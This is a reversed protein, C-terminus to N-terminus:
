LYSCQSQLLYFFNTWSHVCPFHETWGNNLGLCHSELCKAVRLFQQGAKEYVHVHTNQRFAINFSNDLFYAVTLSNKTAYVCIHLCEAFHKPLISTPRDQLQVKFPSYQFEWNKRKQSRKKLIPYFLYSDSLAGFQISLIKQSSMSTYYELNLFNTVFLIPFPALTHACVPM